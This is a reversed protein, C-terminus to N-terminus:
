GRLFSKACLKESAKMIGFFASIKYENLSSFFHLVSKEVMKNIFYQYDVPRIHQMPLYNCIVLQNDVYQVIYLLFYFFFCDLKSLM